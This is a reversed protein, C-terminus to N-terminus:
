ADARDGERLGPSLVRGACPSSAGLMPEPSETNYPSLGAGSGEGGRQRYEGEERGYGGEKGREDRGEPSLHARWLMSRPLALVFM